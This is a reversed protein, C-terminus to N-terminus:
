RLILNIACVAAALLFLQTAIHDKFISQITFTKMELSMFAFSSFFYIKSKFKSVGHVLHISRSM